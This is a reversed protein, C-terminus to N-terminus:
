SISVIHMEKHLFIFSDAKKIRLFCGRKFILIVGEYCKLKIITNKKKIFRDEEFSMLAEFVNKMKVINQGWLYKLKLVNPVLAAWCLTEGAESITIYSSSFILLTKPNYIPM